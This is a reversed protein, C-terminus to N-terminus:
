TMVKPSWEYTVLTLNLSILLKALRWIQITDNEKIFPDFYLITCADHTVLHRIEKVDVSIQRVKFSKCRSEESTIKHVAVHTKTDYIQRFNEGIKDISIVDM